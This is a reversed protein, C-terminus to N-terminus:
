IEQGRRRLLLFTLLLSALSLPFVYLERKNLYHESRIDSPELSNLEAYVNKLTESNTAEFTKANTDTALKSLLAYDFDEKKGVGISYIKIGLEKANLAADKVSIAGSNQYGDTVLVIVKSKAEGKQLLRTASAIGEGIATSDGAIGVEIFDLLFAVANMDYTLPVGSYAYSGFVSVGVNDNYRKSIFEKLTEQLIDFKKRQKNEEDFGSEAMSGSADLAFVLDRGKRKSSVKQEYSIPSALAAVLLTLIFSYLLKDKQLFSTANTFLHTHPFFLEKVSKPCKYICIILLLLLFALPHEFEFFNVENWGM